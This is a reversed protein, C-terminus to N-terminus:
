PKHLKCLRNREELLTAASNCISRASSRDNAQIAQQLKDICDSLSQEVVSLADTSVPDSYRLDDSLKKVASIIEQDDTMSVMSQVRIQLSHIFATEVKHQDEIRNVEDRAAGTGILGTVAAGLLVTYAAIAVGIPVIWARSLFYTSLGIQIVLYAIGVYAIPFGYFKSKTGGGQYSAARIVYGQLLIAAVTFLYSVWFVSSREMFPIAFMVVTYVIFIVALIVAWRIFGKKGAMM